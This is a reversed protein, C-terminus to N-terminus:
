MEALSKALIASIRGKSDELEKQLSADSKLETEIAKIVRAATFLARSDMGNGILLVDSGARLASICREGPALYSLAKMDMDDTFLIGKFGLEKRLLGKLIIQSLSSPNAPDLSSYIVHSSMICPIGENILDRFPCLDIELEQRSCELRPLDFHTDLVTRGHGPFHKGCTLIGRERFVRFFEIGARAVKEPDSSFARPGIVPNGPELDVDLVPSYSLNIGLELLIDAMNNATEPVREAWERAYPFRPIDSPFRNVRGGEFDISVIQVSGESCEKVDHLLNKFKNRWSFASDILESSPHDPSSKDEFNRSFLIIGLPKLDNLIKKEEHSLSTGELGVVFHRGLDLASKNKKASRSLDSLNM